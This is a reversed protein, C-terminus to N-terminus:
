KEFLLFLVMTGELGPPKHRYVWSEPSQPFMVLEADALLASV